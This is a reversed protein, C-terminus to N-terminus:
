SRTSQLHRYDLGITSVCQGEEIGIVLWVSVKSTGQSTVSQQRYKTVIDHVIPSSPLIM